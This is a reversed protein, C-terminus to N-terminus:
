TLGLTALIKCKLCSLSWSTVYVQGLACALLPSFWTQSWFSHGCCQTAEFPIARLFPLCDAARCSTLPEFHCVQFSLSKTEQPILIKQQQPLSLLIRLGRPVACVCLIRPSAPLAPRPTKRAKRLVRSKIWMPCQSCIFSKSQLLMMPGEGSFFSTLLIVLAYRRDCLVGTSKGPPGTTFFRGALM